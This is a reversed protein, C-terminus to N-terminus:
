NRDTLICGSAYEVLYEPYAQSSDFIVYIKPSDINDVCSDYYKGTPDDSHLPPPKRLKPQGQTYKGVLVRALFMRAKRREPEQPVEMNTALATSALGSINKIAVPKPLLRNRQYCKNLKCQLHPCVPNISTGPQQGISQTNVAPSPKQQQFGTVNPILPNAQGQQQSSTKPNAAGSSQGSSGSGPVSFLVPGIGSSSSGSGQQSSTQIQHGAAHTHHSLNVPHFQVNQPTQGVPQGLNNCSGSSSTPMGFQGFNVNVPPFFLANPLMSLHVPLSMSTRMMSSSGPQRRLDTYQHSYSAEVAFYSGVVFWLYTLMTIM